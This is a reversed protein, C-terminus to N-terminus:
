FSKESSYKNYSVAESNVVIECKKFVEYGDKGTAIYEKTCLKYDKDLDIYEDQIKVLDPEIRKGAPKSPDFGFTMGAVQPFRGELAPYQSVGNELAQIVQAGTVKIVVLPDVLPLITLLDRLKFVGKPHIRDSRFTGSNLLAVDAKTTELMIDTVFNGLNTEQTRVSSFKGDLEVAMDGLHEDMMKDVSGLHKEVIEKVEVDEEITSDIDVKQIDVTFGSNDPKMTILSLNRFDTGSKVIYTGNVQEVEYDHDHGGLIIDINDVKEALIRDNPWRMHTMAIVIDAGQERLEKALRQGEEAFDLFTCDEPDLTALTDIWEEEVLGIMGIKYGNWEMVHTIKGEALPENTLNDKINSLLWPFSSEKAIDELHDVGFDFDHNGYVACHVGIKNLIPVMQKGKLFISLLSPNLLDGSFLVLPKLDRQSKIYSAFRAAGGIPEDRQPEINYVDNFHIITIEGEKSM